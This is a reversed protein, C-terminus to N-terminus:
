PLGAQPAPNVQQEVVLGKEMLDMQRSPPRGQKYPPALVGQCDSLNATPATDGGSRALSTGWSKCEAARV